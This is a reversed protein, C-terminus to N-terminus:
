YMDWDLGEGMNLDLLPLNIELDNRLNLLFEKLSSLRGDSKKVNEYKKSFQCRKVEPEINEIIDVISEKVAAVTMADISKLYDEEKNSAAIYQTKIERSAVLGNKLEGIANNRCSIGINRFNSLSKPYTLNVSNRQHIERLKQM